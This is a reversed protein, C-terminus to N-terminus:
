GPRSRSMDLDLRSGARPEVRWKIVCHLGRGDSAPAFCDNVTDFLSPM